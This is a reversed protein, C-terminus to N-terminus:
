RAATGAATGRNGPRAARGDDAVRVPREGHRPGVAADDRERGADRRGRGADLADVEDGRAELALRAEAGRAEAGGAAALREDRDRDPRADLPRQGLERPDGDGHLLAARQAAAAPAPQRARAAVAGAAALVDRDLAAVGRRAGGADVGHAEAAAEPAPPQLGPAVAEHDACAVARAVHALRLARCEADDALRPIGVAPGM